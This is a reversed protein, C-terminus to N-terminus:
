DYLIHTINEGKIRIRGKRALEDLIPDLLAYRMGACRRLRSWEMQGGNESLIWLVRDKPSYSSSTM